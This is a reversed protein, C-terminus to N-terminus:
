AQLMGLLQEFCVEAAMLIFFPLRLSAFPPSDKYILHQSTVNKFVANGDPWANRRHTVNDNGSTGMM